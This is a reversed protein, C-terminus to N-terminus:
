GPKITFTADVESLAKSVANVVVSFFRPDVQNRRVTVGRVAALHEFPTVRQEKGQEQQLKQLVELSSMIQNSAVTSVFETDLSTGILSASVPSGYWPFFVNKGIPFFLLKLMDQVLKDSNETKQIEGGEIVWDRNVIKFDYSM